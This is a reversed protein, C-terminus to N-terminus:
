LLLWALPNVWGTGPLVLAVMTLVLGLVSFAIGSRRQGENSLWRKIGECAVFWPGAFLAVATVPPAKPAVKVVFDWWAGPAWFGLLALVLLTTVLAAAVSALIASSSSEKRVNGRIMGMAMAGPSPSLGSCQPHGSM